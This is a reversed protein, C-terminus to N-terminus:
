SWTEAGIVFMGSQLVWFRYWGAKRFERRAGIWMTGGFPSRCRQLYGKDARRTSYRRTMCRRSRRASQAALSFKHLSYSSKMTLKLKLDFFLSPHSIDSSSVSRDQSLAVTVKVCDGDRNQHEIVVFPPKSVENTPMKIRRRTFDTKFTEFTLTRFCSSVKSAASSAFVCDVCVFAFWLNSATLDHPFFFSLNFNIDVASYTNASTCYVFCALTPAMVVLSHLAVPDPVHKLEATFHSRPSTSSSLNPPHLTFQIANGQNYTTRCCCHCPCSM